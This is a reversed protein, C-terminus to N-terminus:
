VHRDIEIGATALQSCILEVVLRTHRAGRISKPGEDSKITRMCDTASNAINHRM